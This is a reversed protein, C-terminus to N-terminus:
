KVRGANSWSATCRPSRRTEKQQSASPDRLRPLADERTGSQVLGIVEQVKAGAAERQARLATVEGILDQRAGSVDGSLTTIAQNQKEMAETLRANESALAGFGTELQRVLKNLQAEVEAKVTVPLKQEVQLKWERVGAIVDQTKAAEGGFTKMAEQWQDQCTKLDAEKVALTATTEQVQTQCTALQAAVADYDSKPLKFFCGGSSVLVALTAVILPKHTM